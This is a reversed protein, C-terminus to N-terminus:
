DVEKLVDIKDKLKKIKNELKAIKEEKKARDLAMQVTEIPPKKPLTEYECGCRDCINTEEKGMVIELCKPCIAM